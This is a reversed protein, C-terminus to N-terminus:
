MPGGLAIMWGAIVLGMFIMLSGEAIAVVSERIADMETYRDNNM